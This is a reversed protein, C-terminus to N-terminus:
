GQRIREAPRCPRYSRVAAIQMGAPNQSYRGGAAINMQGVAIVRLGKQSMGTLKALVNSKEKECLDCLSLIREPSGKAAVTIGDEIKGCM